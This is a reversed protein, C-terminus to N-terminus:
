GQALGFAPFGRALRAPAAAPPNRRPAALPPPLAPSQPPAAVRVELTGITVGGSAARPAPAERPPRPPVGPRDAVVVAAPVPDPGPTDPATRLPLTTEATWRKALPPVPVARAPERQVAREPAQVTRSVITAPAGPVPPLETGHFLPPAGPVPPPETALSLPPTTAPPAVAATVPREGEPVASPIPAVAPGAVLPVGPPPTAAWEARPAAPTAADSRVSPLPIARVPAEALPVPAPPRLGAAPANPAPAPM